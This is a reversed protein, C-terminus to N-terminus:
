PPLIKPLRHQFNRFQLLYATSIKETEVSPFGRNKRSIPTISVNKTLHTITLRPKLTYIPWLAVFNYFYKPLM